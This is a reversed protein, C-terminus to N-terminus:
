KIKFNKNEDIYEISDKYSRVTVMDFLNLKVPLNMSVKEEM